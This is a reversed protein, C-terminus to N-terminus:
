YRSISSKSEYFKGKKKNYIILRSKKPKLPLLQSKFDIIVGPRFGKTRKEM